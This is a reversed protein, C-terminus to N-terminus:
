RVTVKEVVADIYALAAGLSRRDPAHVIAHGLRERDGTAPSLAGAGDLYLEVEQCGETRVLQERLRDPDALRGPRRVTLYRIAALTAAPRRAPPMPRDTLCRLLAEALEIGSVGAVLRRIGDGPLDATVDLVVPGTPTLRAEIEFTSRTLGLAAIVAASTRELAVRDAAAFRRDVVAGIEVFYPRSALESEVVAAIAARRGAVFGQVRVQRGTVHREVLLTSGSPIRDAGPRDLRDRLYGRLTALDDIRRVLRGGAGDVPKVVLPYGVGAAADALDLEGAEGPRVTVLVGPAVGIGAAALAQKLTDKGRMRSTAAPSPGPLGLAAVVSAAAPVASGNAPVAAVVDAQATLGKAVRVVAETSSTDVQTYGM